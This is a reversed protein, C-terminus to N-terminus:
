KLRYNHTFLSLLFKKYEMSLAAKADEITKYFNRGTIHWVDSEIHFTYVEKEDNGDYVETTMANTIKGFSFYQPIKEEESNTRVVAEMKFMFPIEDFLKYGVDNWSIFTLGKADTLLVPYDVNEVSLLDFEMRSFRRVSGIKEFRNLQKLNELNRLTEDLSNNEM